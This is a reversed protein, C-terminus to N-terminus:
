SYITNFVFIFRCQFLPFIFLSSIFSHFLLVNLYVTIDPVGIIHYIHLYVQYKFIIILSLFLSTNQLINTDNSNLVINFIM